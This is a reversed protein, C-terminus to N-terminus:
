LCEIVDGTSLVGVSAHSTQITSVNRPHSNGPHESKRVLEAESLKTPLGSYRVMGLDIHAQQSLEQLM